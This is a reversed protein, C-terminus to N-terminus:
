ALPSRNADKYILYRAPTKGLAGFWQPCFARMWIFDGAQVPYWSDSLRYIGQGELMLLGHEMLHIEVMPLSAGPRYTLVNVAFDFAADEPLLCRVQPGDDHLQSEASLSPEYGVRPAPPALGALPTYPKEIVAIRSATEARIRHECNEPLYVFSGLQLQHHATDFEVVASGELLYAYRQPPATSLSGGPEIEATYETFRAGLAPNCHVIGVARIM